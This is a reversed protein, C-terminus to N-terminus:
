KLAVASLAIANELLQVFEARYGGPDHALASQAAKRAHELSGDATFKSNRLVQGAEAVAAAFRFDASAEQFKGPAALVPWKLLRSTASQPHKYRVKVFCLESSSKGRRNPKTDQYRLKDVPSALDASAIPAIEYLATTQHGAGLDGADKKDDNFEEPRLVRNEYGILRYSRVAAPNFELQFKVDKAVTLLTGAMQEVLVKRAERLTDIYAYNGNGHDALKEMKSDKLNGMGFGLVSLSVGSEREQEILRVLEDDSSVGVNFDGDTALIVRNNGKPLLSQRALQYALRIGQAGNTSGGPRLSEIADLIRRKDSGPTPDLVRGAAGAYVAVAVRDQERLQEVLLRMSQKILPLKSPMDMSGSVDILFVLNSPPLNEMAVPKTRIAVRLLWNSANWPCQALETQFAFPDDGEPGPQNYPFYNLMEEIRVAGPPPLRGERLVRRINSYSATDVDASFTSLPQIRPSAFPNEVFHDYQETNWNMGRIRIGSAPVRAQRQTVSRSASVEVTETLFGLDLRIDFRTPQGSHPTFQTTFTRFGPSSATISCVVQAPLGIMTFRGNPDTVVSTNFGVVPCSVEIKANVISAGTPDTLSGSLSATQQSFLIPACNLLLLSVRVCAGPCAYLSRM